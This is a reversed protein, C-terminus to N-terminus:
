KTEPNSVMLKEDPTELHFSVLEVKAGFYDTTINQM